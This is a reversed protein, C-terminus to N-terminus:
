DHCELSLELGLDEAGAAMRRMAGQFCGTRGAEKVSLIADAGCGTKEGGKRQEKNFKEEGKM